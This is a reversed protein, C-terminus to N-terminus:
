VPPQRTSRRVLPTWATWKGAKTGVRIWLPKSSGHWEFTPIYAAVKKILIPVRPTALSPHRLTSVQITLPAAAGRTDGNTSVPVEIYWHGSIGSTWWTPAAVFSVPYFRKDVEWSAATAASANGAPDVAKVRMTHEGNSLGLLAKPSSCASYSGSDIACTFTAEQDGTFSVTADGTRIMAAPASTIQPAAPPTLDVRWSIVAASSAKGGHVQKVSVSHDGETLDSLALPSTCPAYSGGDTSCSFSFDGTISISATRSNTVAAPGGSLVPPEPTVVLAGTFATPSLRNTTTGDGLQGSRNDGWCKLSFNSRIVCVYGSGDGGDGMSATVHIADSIGSVATALQTTDTTGIGLQGDNNYGWCKITGDSMRVCLNLAGSTLEVADTVGTVNFVGHSYLWSSANGISGGWNNGWCKVTASLMLACTHFYGAALKDVGTLGTVTVPVSSYAGVLDHDVSWAGLAGGNENMGWCRATTDSLVACSHFFGSTIQTATSIGTVSVPTNSSNTSGNGLNGHGGSGWCKISHDALLACASEYGAAVQTATTIGTVAVPTSSTTNNGNGLQGSDNDGWCKISGGSLVACSFRNGSSIQTATTIGDVAVPSLSNTKTGDGIQGYENKGWCNVSGDDLLVCATM